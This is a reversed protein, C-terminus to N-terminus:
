RFKRGVPYSLLSSKAIEFSKVRKLFPPWKSNKSFSCFCLHAEIEKVTCSLAIEVPLRKAFIAKGGSKAVRKFKRRLLANVESVTYFPTLYLSKSLFKPGM